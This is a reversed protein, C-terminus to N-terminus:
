VVQASPASSAAGASDVPRVVNQQTHTEWEMEETFSTWLPDIHNFVYSEELLGHRFVLGVPSLSLGFAATIWEGGFDVYLPFQALGYKDVFEEAVQADPTSLLVGLRGAARDAWGDRGFQEMIANCSSCSTSLVVLLFDPQARLEALQPPWAVSERLFVGSRGLPRVYRAPEAAAAGGAGVRSSLEACMAFLLGVAGALILLVFAFLILM